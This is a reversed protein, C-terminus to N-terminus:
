FWLQLIALFCTSILFWHINKIFLYFLQYFFFININNLPLNFQDKQVESQVAEMHLAEKSIISYINKTACTTSIFLPTYLDGVRHTPQIFWPRSVTYLMSPLVITKCITNVEGKPECFHNCSTHITLGLGNLCQAENILM